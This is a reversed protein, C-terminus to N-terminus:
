ERQQEAQWWDRYRDRIREREKRPASAVYGYYVQSVKQLENGAVARVAESPETLGDILWEVRSRGAASVLWNRWKREARGFDHGTICVLAELAADSVRRDRDGSLTVLSPVSAPDRVAQLGALADLRSTIALGPDTARERLQLLAEDFGAMGEFARLADRALLRVQGDQDFIAQFMPSVLLPAPAESALLVAYFRVDSDKSALLQALWPNARPGFAIFARAVASVDSGVPMRRHPRHRDFWLPGPFRETLLPLAPEGVALLAELAPGEDDPGCQCLENVMATVDVGSEVVITPEPHGSSAPQPRKRSPPGTGDGHDDVAAPVQTIDAAESREPPFRVIDTPLTQSAESRQDGRTQEGKALDGNALDGRTPRPQPAAGVAPGTPHDTQRQRTMAPQTAM